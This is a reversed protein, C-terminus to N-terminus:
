TATLSANQASDAQALLLQLALRERNSVGEFLRLRNECNDRVTECGPSRLALDFAAQRQVVPGRDNKLLRTREHFQAAPRRQQQPQEAVHGVLFPELLLEPLRLLHVGDALQGATHRMIEVVNQGDDVAMGRQEVQAVEGPAGFRGLLDDAASRAAPKVRCNSVKLRDHLRAPQVHVFDHSVHGLHQAANQPPRQQVHVIRAAEQTSASALMISCTTNFRATFARSAM